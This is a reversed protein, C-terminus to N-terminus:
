EATSSGGASFCNNLIGLGLFVVQVISMIWLDKYQESCDYDGRPLTALIVIGVIFWAFKFLGSLLAIPVACFMIEGVEAGIAVAALTIGIATTILNTIGSALLWTALGFSVNDSQCPDEWVNKIGTSWEESTPPKLSQTNKAGIVVAAIDVTSFIISCCVLVFIIGGKEVSM